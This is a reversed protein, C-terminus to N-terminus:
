NKYAKLRTLELYIDSKLTSVWRNYSKHIQANSHNLNQSDLYSIKYSTSTYNIQVKAMHKRVNLEGILQGPSSKTIVWGRPAGAMIIANEIDTIKLGTPIVGNDINLVPKINVSCGVTILLCLALLSYKINKM